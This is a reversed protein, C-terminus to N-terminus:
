SKMKFIKKIDFSKKETTNTKYAISKSGSIYWYVGGVCLAGGVINGLTVYTLNKLYGLWTIDITPESILSMVLLSMNAVSHEFGSSVFAFLCWFIIILKATDEKTRSCMWLALCVIMNCLIGRFFLEIATLNMKLSAYYNIYNILEINNLLGSIKLVGVFLIGGVLNGLFCVLWVIATDSWRVEGSLFGVFMCMINGTFLEAGAFVVLTLGISFTSGILTKTIALGDAYLPAGISFVLFIAIGVYIGALMSLVFYRMFDKKVMNRKFVANAILKKLTENYM